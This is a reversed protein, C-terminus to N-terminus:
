RLKKTVNDSQPQTREIRARKSAFKDIMKFYVTRTKKNEGKKAWKEEILVKTKRRKRGRSSQTIGFECAKSQIQVTRYLGMIIESPRNSRKGQCVSKKFTRFYSEILANSYRMPSFVDSSDRLTDSSYRDHYNMLLGTWLPLYAWWRYFIRIIPPSFLKNNSKNNYFKNHILNALNPYRRIAEKNFPSQHIIPTNSRLYEDVLKLEDSKKKAKKFIKKRNRLMSESEDDVNLKLKMMKEIKETSNKEDPDGFIDIILGLIDYLEDIDRSCLIFAFIHLVIRRTPKDIHAATLSRAIAHVVHCSCLHIFCLSRLEQSNYKKQIVNWCRNLHANISEINFAQLVANMIAPSFDIIVFSPLMVKGAIQSISDVLSSLFFAISSVRHQTLLAHGLTVTDNCDTGDKFIVAYLFPHSQDNMKHIVGGTADIHLYSYKEAKCYNLYRKIQQESYLHTRFPIEALDHVYGLSNMILFM